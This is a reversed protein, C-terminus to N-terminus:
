RELSLQLRTAIGWLIARVREMENLAYLIDEDEEKVRPRVWTQLREDTLRYLDAAEDSICKVRDIDAQSRAM